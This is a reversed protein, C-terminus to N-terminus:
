SAAKKLLGLAYTRERELVEPDLDPSRRQRTEYYRDLWAEDPTYSHKCRGCYVTFHHEGSISWGASWGNSVPLDHAAQHASM